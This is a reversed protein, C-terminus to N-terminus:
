VRRRRWNKKKRGRDRGAEQVGLVQAARQEEETPDRPEPLAFVAQGLRSSRARDEEVSRLWDDIPVSPMVGGERARGTPTGGGPTHEDGDGTGDRRSRM